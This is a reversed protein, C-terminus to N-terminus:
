ETPGAQLRPIVLPPAADLQKGAESKPLKDFCRDAWRLSAFASPEGAHASDGASELKHRGRELLRRAAPIRGCQWHYLAVALQIWGQLYRARSGGAQLWLDEWVEHADFAEGALLLALGEHFPADENPRAAM